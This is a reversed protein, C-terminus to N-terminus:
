RLSQEKEDVKRQERLEQGRSAGPRLGWAKSKVVQVGERRGRRWGGARCLMESASVNVCQRCSGQIKRQSVYSYSQSRSSVEM